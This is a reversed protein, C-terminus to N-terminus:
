ENPARRWRNGQGWPFDNWFKALHTLRKAGEAVARYWGWADELTKM